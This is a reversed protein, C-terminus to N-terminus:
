QHTATTLRIDDDEDDPPARKLLCLQTDGRSWEQVIQASNVGLQISHINPM